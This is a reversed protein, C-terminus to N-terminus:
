TLAGIKAERDYLVTAIANGLNLCHITPITVFRHCSRRFGDRVSGDEPGFVYLPLEPHEFQPLREASNDFEVCVPTWAAGGFAGYTRIMQDIPRPENLWALKVHRYDRLREERPLRELREVEAKCRKGTVVVLDGGYCAALRVAQGVHHPFKPNDLLIGFKTTTEM